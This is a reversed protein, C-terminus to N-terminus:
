NSKSYFSARIIKEQSSVHIDLILLAIGLHCNSNKKLSYEIMKLSHKQIDKM